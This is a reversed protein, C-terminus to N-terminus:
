IGDDTLEKLEDNDFDEVANIADEDIDDEVVNKPRGRKKKDVPALLPDGNEIVRTEWERAADMMAKSFKFKPVYKAPIDCWKRTNPIRSRRAERYHPCITGFKPLYVSEGNKMAEILIEIFMDVINKVDGVTYLVEKDARKISFKRSQGEDDMITFEQKPISVPKRIDAQKLAECVLSVIEEKKM